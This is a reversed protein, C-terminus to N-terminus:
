FSFLHQTFPSTVVMTFPLAHYAVDVMCPLPKVKVNIVLPQPTGNKTVMSSVM